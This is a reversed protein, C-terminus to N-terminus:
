PVRHTLRALKTASYRLVGRPGVDRYRRRATRWRGNLRSQWPLTELTHTRELIDHVRTSDLVFRAGHECEAVATIIDNPLLNKPGVTAQWGSMRFLSDDPKGLHAAVDPRELHPESQTVLAGNRYVSVARIRHSEQREDCAGRDAAWGRLTAPALELADVHGTPGCELRLAADPVEGRCVVWLDQLFCLARPLRIAQAAAECGVAADLQRRVFEETTYNTGYDETSLSAVESSATFSFGDVLVAGTDNVAEDHVSFVLVGEPAVFEWVKGLWPGFSREPLHTFLSAVFVMDYRRDAPV